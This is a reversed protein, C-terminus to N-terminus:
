LLTASNLIIQNHYFTRKLGINKFGMAAMIQEMDTKAKNGAGNLDKYNRSLYCNM